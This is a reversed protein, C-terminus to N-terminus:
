SGKKGKNGKQGKKRKNNPNQMAKRFDGRYVTGQVGITPFYRSNRLQDNGSFLGDNEYDTSGVTVRERGTTGFTAYLSVEYAKTRDFYLAGVQGKAYLQTGTLASNDANAFRINATGAGLGYYGWVNKERVAIQDLEFNLGYARYKSENFGRHYYPNVSARYKRSAFLTGKFGLGIDQEVHQFVPTLTEDDKFKPFSQPYKLPILISQASVGWGGMFPQVTNNKKKGQASALGILTMLLWM